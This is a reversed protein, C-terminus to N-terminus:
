REDIAIFRLVSRTAAKGNCRDVAAQLLAVYQRLDGAKAPAYEVEKEGMRVRVTQGGLTLKHLADLAEALAQRYEDCTM